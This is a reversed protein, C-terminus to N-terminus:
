KVTFDDSRSKKPRHVIFGVAIVAALALIYPVLNNSKVHTVLIFRGIQTTLDTYRDIVTRVALMVLDAAASLIVFKVKGFGTIICILESFATVSGFASLFTLEFMATQDLKHSYMSLIVTLAASAAFVALSFAIRFAKSCAAKKIILM